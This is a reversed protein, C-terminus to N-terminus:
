TPFFVHFEVVNEYDRFVDVTVSTIVNRQGSEDYYFYINLWRRGVAVTHDSQLHLGAL